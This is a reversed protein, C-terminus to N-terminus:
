NDVYGPPQEDKKIAFAKTTGRPHKTIQGDRIRRNLTDQSIPQGDVAFVRRWHAPSHERTWESEAKAHERVPIDDTVGKGQMKARLIHSVQRLYTVTDTFELELDSQREIFGDAPPYDRENRRLEEYEMEIAQPIAYHRWTTEGDKDADDVDQGNLLRCARHDLNLLKHLPQFLKSEFDKAFDVSVCIKLWTVAFEANHERYLSRLSHPGVPPPPLAKLQKKLESM